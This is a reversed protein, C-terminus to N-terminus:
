RPRRFIRRCRRHSAVYGHNLEEDLQPGPHLFIGVWHDVGDSRRPDFHYLCCIALERKAEFWSRNPGPDLCHRRLEPRDSVVWNWDQAITHASLRSRNGSLHCLEGASHFAPDFDPEGNASASRVLGDGALGSENEGG